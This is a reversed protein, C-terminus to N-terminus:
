ILSLLCLGLMAGGVAKLKDGPKEPIQNLPKTAMELGGPLFTVCRAADICADFIGQFAAWQKEGACILSVLYLRVIQMGNTKPGRSVGAIRYSFLFNGCSVALISHSRSCDNTPM